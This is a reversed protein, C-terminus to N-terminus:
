WTWDFGGTLVWALTGALLGLGIWGLLGRGGPSRLWQGPRGLWVTGRDFLRNIGVLPRMWLAPPPGVDADDPAAPATPLGGGRVPPAAPEEEAPPRLGIAALVEPSAPISPEWDTLAPDQSNPGAQEPVQAEEPIAPLTLLAPAPLPEREEPAERLAAPAPSSDETEPAPLDPAEAVATTRLEDELQNVPLSLMRQMLADLEDLLQRTPHGPAGPPRSSPPTSM